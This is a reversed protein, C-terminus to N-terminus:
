EEGIYITGISIDDAHKTNSKECTKIFKNVRREMFEGFFSKVNILEMVVNVFLVEENTRSAAADISSYFSKVGDSMVSVLKVKDIDFSFSVAIDTLSCDSTETTTHYESGYFSTTIKRKTGFTEAFSKLRISDLLYSYYLPANSIFEIDIITISDDKGTVAVVGDGVCDVKVKNDQVVASLLTADLCTYPMGMVNAANQIRNLFTDTNLPYGYTNHIIEFMRTQVMAGFESNPSSSCGDSIVVYPGGKASVGHRAYDQCVKHTSGIRFASSSSKM